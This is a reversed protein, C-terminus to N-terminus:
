QDNIMLQEQAKVRQVDENPGSTLLKNGTTEQRASSTHTQGIIYGVVKATAVM